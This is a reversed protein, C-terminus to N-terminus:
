QRRFAAVRRDAIAPATALATYINEGFTRVDDGPLQVLFSKLLIESERFVTTLDFQLDLLRQWSQEPSLLSGEAVTTAAVFYEGSLDSAMKNLTRIKHMFGLHRSFLVRSLRNHQRAKQLSREGRFDELNLPDYAPTSAFHRAHRELADLMSELDASFRGCLDASVSANDRAVGLRGQRRMTVAEDLVVSFVSYSTELEGRVSGFLETKERSLQARWDQMVTRRKGQFWAILRALLELNAESLSEPNYVRYWYYLFPLPLELELHPFSVGGVRKTNYVWLVQSMRASNENRVLSAFSSLLALYAYKM